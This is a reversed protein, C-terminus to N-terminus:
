INQSQNQILFTKKFIIIILSYDITKKFTLLDIILFYYLTPEKNIKQKQQKLKNSILLLM